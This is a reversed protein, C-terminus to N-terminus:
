YGKPKNLYNNKQLTTNKKLVSEVWATFVPIQDEITSPAYDSLLPTAEYEVGGLTIYKVPRERMAKIGVYHADWNLLKETSKKRM